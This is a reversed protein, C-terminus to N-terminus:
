RKGLKKRIKAYDRDMLMRVFGPFYRFLRWYLKAKGPLIQFKNSLVGKIFTEAVEEPELLKAKESIMACELPKTENEREFGPTRTDPPYLVSIKISFPKLEHRLSEAFGVIAHKTPSYTSYGMIGLYGLVSSTFTIYGGRRDKMYYPLIILTPMLQGFYNVDMNRKFDDFVLNEVYQPYAYGVFNFLYDPVCRRKIYERILPELRDPDTTDCLIAEVFQSKSIRLLNVEKKAEEIDGIAIICVSGGLRAVEKAVALGIGQSGGTIMVSKDAFYQQKIRGPKAM